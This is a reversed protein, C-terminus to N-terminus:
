SWCLVVRWLRDEDHTTENCSHPMNASIHELGDGGTIGDEHLPNQRRPGVVLARGDQPVAVGSQRVAALEHGALRHHRLLRVAAGPRPRQQLVVDEDHGGVPRLPPLAGLLLEAVEADVGCAEGGESGDIEVGEISDELIGLSRWEM